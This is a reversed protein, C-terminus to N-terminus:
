VESIEQGHNEEFIKRAVTATKQDDVLVAILTGGEALKKQYERGASESLGFNALFAAADGKEVGIDAHDAADVIKGAGMFSGTGGAVAPGVGALLGFGENFLGSGEERREDSEESNGRDSTFIFIEEKAFGADTIRQTIEQVVEDADTLCLVYHKM